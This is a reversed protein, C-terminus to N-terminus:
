PEASRQPNVHNRASLHVPTPVVPVGRWNEPLLHKGKLALRTRFRDRLVIGEMRCRDAWSRDRISDIKSLNLLILRGLRELALRDLDGHLSDPAGM